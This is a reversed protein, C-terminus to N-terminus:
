ETTAPDLFDAVTWGSIAGDASEVEYWVFEDAEEPGSVITLEEGEDVTDLIEGGTSPETRIRVGNDNVVVADGEAFDLQPAPTGEAEETPETEVAEPTGEAEPTVEGPEAIFDVVVFGTLGSSNVEIEYWTFEDAEVPGSLITLEVGSAVQEVVDADVSAEARVNVNDQTAVVVTGAPIGDAVTGSTGDSPTAEAEPTPQEVPDSFTITAPETELASTPVITLAYYSVDEEENDRAASAVGTSFFAADGTGLTHTSDPPAAAALAQQASRTVQVEGSNVTFSLNGDIRSVLLPSESAPFAAGATLTVLNVAVTANGAPMERLLGDGLVVFSVGVYATQRSEQDTDLTDDTYDISVPSGDGVPQIVASLIVVNSETNNSFSMGVGSPYLIWDGVNLDTPEAVTETSGGDARSVTADGVPTASLVGEEILGFEPGPHTHEPVSAGPELTIRLLRITVPSAPLEEFDFVFLQEIEPPTGETAPEASPSAEPTAAPTANDQATAVPAFVLSLTSLIALIALWLGRRPLLTLGTTTSGRM